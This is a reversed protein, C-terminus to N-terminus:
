WSLWRELGVFEKAVFFQSLALCPLERRHEQCLSRQGLLIALYKLGAQAVYYTRHQAILHPVTEFFLGVWCLFGYNNTSTLISVRVVIGLVCM